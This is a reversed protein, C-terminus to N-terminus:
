HWPEIGTEEEAAGPTGILVLELGEVDLLDPDIPAFRKDGFKQRLVSPPTSVDPPRRGLQPPAEPNFAAAIYSARPLIGLVRQVQGPSEPDTLRYTLHVHSEHRLLAYVGEGATRAAPQVRRGRTKTDYEFRHLDRLIAAASREVREIEVWFRQRRQPDPMRKRGVLLRRYAVRREPRLVVYLRQVNRLRILGDDLALPLADGPRVRPMYLFYLEGRELLEARAM